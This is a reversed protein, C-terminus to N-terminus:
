FRGAVHLISDGRRPPLTCPTGVVASSAIAAFQPPLHETDGSHWTSIQRATQRGMIGFASLARVDFIPREQGVDLMFEFDYRDIGVRV